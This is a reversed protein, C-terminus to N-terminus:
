RERQSVLAFSTIKFEFFNFLLNELTLIVLFKCETYNCLVKRLLDYKLYATM